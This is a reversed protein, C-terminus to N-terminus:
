YANGTKCYVKFVFKASGTLYFFQLDLNLFSVRKHQDQAFRAPNIADVASLISQWELKMNYNASGFRAYFLCLEAYSGSWILLIYYIYRKYLVIHKCFENVNPTEVM